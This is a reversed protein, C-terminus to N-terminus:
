LAIGRERPDSPRVQPGDGFNATSRHPGDMLVPQDTAALKTMSPVSLEAWMKMTAHIRTFGFFDVHQPAANRNTVM